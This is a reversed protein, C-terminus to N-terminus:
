RGFLKGFFGRKKQPVENSTSELDQRMSSEETLATAGAPEIPRGSHDTVVPEPTGEQQDRRIQDIAARLTQEITDESTDEKAETVVPAPAPQSAPAVPINFNSTDEERVPVAEPSVITSANSRVRGEIVGAFFTGVPGPNINQVRRTAGSLSSQVIEDPRRREVVKEPVIPDAAVPSVVSPSPAPQMVPEVVPVPAPAEVVEPAPIPSYVPEPVSHVPASEAQTAAVPAEEQDVVLEGKEKERMVQRFHRALEVDGDKWEDDSSLRNVEYQEFGAIYSEVDKTNEEQSVIERALAGRIERRKRVAWEPTVGGQDPDVKEAADYIDRVLALKREASAIPTIELQGAKEMVDELLIARFVDNKSAEPLLDPHNILTQRLVDSTLSAGLEQDIYKSYMTRRKERLRREFNEPTLVAKMEQEFTALTSHITSLSQRDSAFIPAVPSEDQLPATTEPPTDSTPNPSVQNFTSDDM